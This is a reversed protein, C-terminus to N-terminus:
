LGLQLVAEQELGPRIREEGVLRGPNLKSTLKADFVSDDAGAIGTVACEDQPIPPQL